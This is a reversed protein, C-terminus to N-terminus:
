GGNMFLISFLFVGLVFNDGRLWEGGMGCDRKEILCVCGRKWGLGSKKM